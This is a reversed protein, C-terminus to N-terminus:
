TGRLQATRVADGGNVMDRSSSAERKVLCCMGSGPVLYGKPYQQGKCIIALEARQSPAIRHHHHFHQSQCPSGPEVEARCQNWTFGGDCDHCSYYSRAPARMVFGTQRWRYGWRRTSVRRIRQKMTVTPTKSAPTLSVKRKSLYETKTELICMPYARQLTPPCLPHSVTACVCQYRQLSIDDPPPPPPIIQLPIKKPLGWILTPFNHVNQCM